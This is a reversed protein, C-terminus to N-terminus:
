LDKRILKHLDAVDEERKIIKGGSLILKVYDCRSRNKKLIGYVLSVDGIVVDERRECDGQWLCDSHGLSSGISSLVGVLSVSNLAHILCQWDVKWM